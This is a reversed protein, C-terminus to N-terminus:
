ADGRAPMEDDSHGGVGIGIFEGALGGIIDRAIELAALVLHFHYAFAAARNPHGHLSLDLGALTRKQWQRDKCDGTPKANHTGCDL